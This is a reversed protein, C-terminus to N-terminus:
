PNMPYCRGTVRGIKLVNETVIKSDGRLNAQPTGNRYSGEALRLALSGSGVPFHIGGRPNFAIAHVTVSQSRSGGYQITIEQEDMPNSIANVPAGALVLGTNLPQWRDLLEANVVTMPSAMPSPWSEHLKFLGIQCREDEGPVDRPEAIALITHCRSKIATSRAQEIKSTILDVGVRRSQKRTNSLLTIGSILLVGLIAIVVM